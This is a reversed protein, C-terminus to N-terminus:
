SESRQGGREREGHDRKGKKAGRKDRMEAAKERQEPTLLQYVEHQNKLRMQAMRAKAAAGAETLEKVKAEDYSDSMAMERLQQRSARVVKMEERMKPALAHRLEFIQDRQAETLDLGRMMGMHKGHHGGRHGGGHKMMGSECQEGRHGGWQSDGGDMGGRAHVALPVALAVSSAILFAKITPKSFKM